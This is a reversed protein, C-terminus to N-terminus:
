RYARCTRSLDFCLGSFGFFNLSKGSELSRYLSIICADTLSFRYIGQLTETFEIGMIVAFKSVTYARICTKYHVLM